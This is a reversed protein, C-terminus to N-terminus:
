PALSLQAAIEWGAETLRFGGHDQSVLGLHQARELERAIRPDDFDGLQEAVVEAAWSRDGGMWALTQMLYCFTSREDQVLSM